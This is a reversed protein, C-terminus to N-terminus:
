FLANQLLEFIMRQKSSYMGKGIERMLNAIMKNAEPNNLREFRLRIYEQYPNTDLLQITNAKARPLKGENEIFAFQYYYGDILDLNPSVYVKQSEGQFMLIDGTEAIMVNGFSAFSESTKQYMGIYMVDSPAHKTGKSLLKAIKNQNLPTVSSIELSYPNNKGKPNDTHQLEVKYFLGDTLEKNNGFYFSVRKDLVELGDFEPYYLKMRSVPNTFQNFFGTNNNIRKFTAIFVLEESKWYSKLRETYNTM